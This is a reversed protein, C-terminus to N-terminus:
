DGEHWDDYVSDDENDWLKALVSDKELGIPFYTVTRKAGCGGCIEYHTTSVETATYGSFAQHGFLLCWLRKGPWTLFYLKSLLGEDWM